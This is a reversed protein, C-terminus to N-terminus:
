QCCTISLSCNSSYKVQRLVMIKSKFKGPQRENQRVNDRLSRRSYVVPWYGPLLHKEVVRIYVCLIAYSWTSNRTIYSLTNRTARVTGVHQTNYM